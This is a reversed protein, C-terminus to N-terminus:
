AAIREGTTADEVAAGRRFRAKRTPREENGGYDTRTCEFRKLRAPFDPRCRREGAGLASPM